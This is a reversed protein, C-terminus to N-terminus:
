TPAGMVANNHAWDLRAFQEVSENVLDKVDEEEAVNCKIFQAAAGQEEILRVTENGGGESIDSVVVTAGAKAFALARARGIGVGAGTVIGVKNTMLNEM